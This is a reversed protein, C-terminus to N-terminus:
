GSHGRSLRMRDKVTGDPIVGGTARLEPVLELNERHARCYAALCNQFAARISQENDSGGYDILRQKDEYYREIHPYDPM